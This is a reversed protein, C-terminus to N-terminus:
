VKGDPVYKLLLEAQHGRESAYALEFISDYDKDSAQLAADKAVAEAAFASANIAAGLPSDTFAVEGGASIALVMASPDGFGPYISNYVHDSKSRLLNIENADVQRISRTQGFLILEHLISDNFLSLLRQCCDCGFLRLQGEPILHSQSRLQSEIDMNTAGSDM